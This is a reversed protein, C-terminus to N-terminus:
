QNWRESPALSRSNCGSSASLLNYLRLEPPDERLLLGHVKNHAGGVLESARAGADAM